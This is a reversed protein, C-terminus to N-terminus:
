RSIKIQHNYFLYLYFAQKKNRKCNLNSSSNLNSMSNIIKEMFFLTMAEKLDDKLEFMFDTM